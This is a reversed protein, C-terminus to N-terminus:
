KARLGCAWLGNDCPYKSLQSRVRETVYPGESQGYCQGRKSQDMGRGRGEGAGQLATAMREAPDRALIHKILLAILTEKPNNSDLADELAQEDIGEALARGRLRSLRLGQLELKMAQIDDASSDFSAATPGAAGVSRWSSAAHATGDARGRNGLERCLADM